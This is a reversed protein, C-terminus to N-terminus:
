SVSYDSPLVDVSSMNNALAVWFDRVLSPFFVGSGNRSGM